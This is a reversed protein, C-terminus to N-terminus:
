VTQVHLDLDLVTLVTPLSSDDTKIPVIWPLTSATLVELSGQFTVSSSTPIETWNLISVPASIDAIGECM